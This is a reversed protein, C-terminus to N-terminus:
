PLGRPIGPLATWVRKTGEELEEDASTGQEPFDRVLRMAVDLNFKYDWTGPKIGLARRYDDKALRILPIARDLNRQEVDNFALRLRANAMNYLADARDEPRMYLAAQDLLGQAEEIRDRSLLFQLRALIVVPAARSPDVAIDEGAVLAAATANSAVKTVYSGAAYFFGISSVALVAMILTVRSPLLRSVDPRMVAFWGKRTRNDPLRASTGPITSM